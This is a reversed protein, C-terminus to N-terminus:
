RGVKSVRKCKLNIVVLMVLLLWLLKQFGTGQNPSTDKSINEGRHKLSTCESWILTWSQAQWQPVGGNIQCFVHNHKHLEYTGWSNWIPKGYVAYSHSRHDTQYQEAIQSELSMQKRNCFTLEWLHAKSQGPSRSTLIMMMM